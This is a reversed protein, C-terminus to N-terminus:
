TVTPAPFEELYLETAQRVPDIEYDLYDIRHNPLPQCSVAIPEDRSEFSIVPTAWTRLQGDWEFMWDFHPETCGDSRVGGDHFLVVFRRELSLNGTVTM